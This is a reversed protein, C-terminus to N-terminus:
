VVLLTVIEDFYRVVEFIVDASVLIKVPETNCVDTIFVSLVVVVFRIASFVIVSIKVSTLTLLEVVDVKFEAIDVRVLAEVFVSKMDGSEDIM